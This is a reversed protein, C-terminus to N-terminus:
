RCFIWNWWKFSAAIAVGDSITINATANRGEGEINSLNVNNFTFNGLSPTYGIGANIIKLDGQVLEQM